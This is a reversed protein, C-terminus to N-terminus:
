RLLSDGHGRHWAQGDLDDEADVGVAVRV